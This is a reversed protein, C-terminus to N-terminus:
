WIVVFLKVLMDLCVLQSLKRTSLCYPLCLGFIFGNRTQETETKKTLFNQSDTKGFWLLLRVVRALCVVIGTTGAILLVPLRFPVFGSSSDTGLKSRRQQGPAGRIVGFRYDFSERPWSCINHLTCIDNQRRFKKNIIMLWITFIICVTGGGREGPLNWKELEVSNSLHINSCSCYDM